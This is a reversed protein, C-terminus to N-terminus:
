AHAAAEMSILPEPPEQRLKERVARALARTTPSDAGTTREADDLAVILRWLPLDRLRRRSPTPTTMTGALIPPARLQSNVTM